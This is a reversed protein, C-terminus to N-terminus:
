VYPDGQWLAEREKSFCLCGRAVFGGKEKFFMPMGKGCLRGKRQFDLTLHFLDSVLWNINFPKESHQVKASFQNMFKLNKRVLLDNILVCTSSLCVKSTSFKIICGKVLVRDLFGFSVADYVQFFISTDGSRLGAWKITDMSYMCMM